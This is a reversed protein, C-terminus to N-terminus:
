KAGVPQADEVRPSTKEYKEAIRKEMPVRILSWGCAPVTKVQGDDPDEYAFGARCRCLRAGELSHEEEFPLIIMDLAQGYHTHKRIQEKLARGTLLGGVLRIGSLLPHGKMLTKGNISRVITGLLTRILLIQGRLRQFPKRPDLRALKGRITRSRTVIEEVVEIVPRKLFHSLPRYRTGDSIFTTISECNPHVGSFTSRPKGFFSVLPTLEAGLGLPVFDVPEGPFAENMIQEVDEITTTVDVEFEGDEWTETLPMLHLRGIFDRNEHCFDVLDRMHKDNIRRAACCMITHKITSYKKLNELAKIKKEYADPAKRLRAYIEPSRGDFAILVHAGSECVKKCFAEDALRLGNTVIGVLLGKRQGMRVIEFLEERVTPEGGFLL